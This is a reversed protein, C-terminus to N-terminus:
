TIDKLDLSCKSKRDIPRGMLGIIHCEHNLKKPTSIYSLNDSSHKETPNFFTTSTCHLDIM